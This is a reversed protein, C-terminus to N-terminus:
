KYIKLNFNGITSMVVDGKGIGLENVRADIFIYPIFLAFFVAFNAMTIFLIPLNEKLLKLNVMEKLINLSITLARKYWPDDPKKEPVVFEEINFVSGVFSQVNTSSKFLLDIDRQSKLINM